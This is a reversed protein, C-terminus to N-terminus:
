AADAREQGAEALMREFAAVPVVWRKGIRLAPITGSKVAEYANNRGVGLRRGAEEVTMTDRM